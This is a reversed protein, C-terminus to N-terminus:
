FRIRNSIAEEKYEIYDLNPKQQRTYTSCEDDPSNIMPQSFTEAKRKRSGTQPIIEVENSMDIFDLRQHFAERLELGASHVETGEENYELCNDIILEFDEMAEDAQWYYNNQLRKRITSLDMPYKIVKHYDPIGLRVADVPYRFYYSLRSKWIVGLASKLSDLVNTRRGPRNPPPIVPPQVIGNVPQIYPELRPPAQPKQPQFCGWDM